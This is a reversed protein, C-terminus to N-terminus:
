RERLSVTYFLRRGTPHLNLGSLKANQAGLQNAHILPIMPAWERIRQEAERYIARRKGLDAEAQAGLLTSDLKANVFRAFNTGGINHSGFFVYLFNDADAVDATWGLLCMDHEGVRTKALYLEWPYTIIECQVGITALQDKILQATKKPEPLYPRPNPMAWLTLKLPLSVKAEALLAKAQETSLKTALAAARSEAASQPLVSPPTVQYAPQAHGHFNLDVLAQRDITGAIARRIREDNLPARQCNLALYGVAMGPQETVRVQPLKELKRVDIPNVGNLAHVQETELLRRRASNEKVTLVVVRGTKPAGGWYEENSTLVIRQDAEWRELKYAGTGVPHRGFDVGAKEIAQPSIIFATYVTLNGLFLQSALARKLVFRVTHADIKEVGAIDQYLTDNLIEADHFPHDPKIIREFTFVVADADFPTNDHFRVNKRLSFTWQLGDPSKTWSTALAGVLAISDDAYRVLGDYLNSAVLVSEGDDVKQPDLTVSDAGRAFVFTSAVRSGTATGTPAAAQDCGATLALGLCAALLPALTTRM